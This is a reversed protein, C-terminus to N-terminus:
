FYNPRDNQALDSIFKCKIGVCVVQAHFLSKQIIFLKPIPVCAGQKAKNYTAICQIRPKLIQNPCRLGPGCCPCSCHELHAEKSFWREPFCISCDGIENEARGEQGPIHVLCTSSASSSWLELPLHRRECADRPLTPGHPRHDQPQSMQHARYFCFTRWRFSHQTHMEAQSQRMHIHKSTSM